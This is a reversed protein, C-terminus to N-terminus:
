RGFVREFEAALNLGALVEIQQDSRDVGYALLRQTPVHLVYVVDNNRSVRSAIVIFDEGRDPSSAAEAPETLQVGVMVALIVATALLLGITTNQSSAM